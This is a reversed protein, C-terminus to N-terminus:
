TTRTQDAMSQPSATSTVDDLGGGQRSGDYTVVVHNWTAPKLRDSSSSKLRTTRSVQQHHATRRRGGMSGSTGAATIAQRRGDPAVIAGAAEGEPVQVWAALTFPQDRRLRGVDPLEIRRKRTSAFAKRDAHGAAM